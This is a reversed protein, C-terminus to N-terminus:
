NTSAPPAIPVPTTRLTTTGDGLEGFFNPGWCFIVGDARLGCAHGVGTSIQTFAQSGLVATPTTRDTRTGNGLSGYANRGWCWAAGERLACAFKGGVAVTDFAADGAVPTPLPVDVATAGNGAEGWDNRGWCLVQGAMTRGCAFPSARWINPISFANHPEFESSVDLSSWAIGSASETTVLSSGDTDCYASRSTLIGCSLRESISLGAWTAAFPGVTQPHNLISLITGEGTFGINSSSSTTATGMSGGWCMAVNATTLGCMSRYGGVVSEWSINFDVKRPTSANGVISQDGIQGFTDSGWCWMQRSTTVGCAAWVGAALTRFTLDTGVRFPRLRYDNTGNGLQNTNNAGWCWAAGTSDIACTYGAGASVSTFVVGTESVTLDLSAAVGNYVAFLTTSGRALATVEGSASVLAVQPNLSGWTIVAAPVAAGAVDTVTANLQHREGIRTLPLFEPSLTLTYRGIGVGIPVEGTRPYLRIAIPPNDGNRITTTSMGEYAIEGQADYGRAVFTRLRGVPVTLALTANPADASVDANAVIPTTIGSGTVIVTLARVSTGALSANVTVPAQNSAPDTPSDASCAAVSAAAALVACAHRLSPSSM